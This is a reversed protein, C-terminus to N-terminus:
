RPFRVRTAAVHTELLGALDAWVTSLRAAADQENEASYLGAFLRGIRAHEALILDVIDPM